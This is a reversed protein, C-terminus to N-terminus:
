GMFHNLAQTQEMANHISILDGGMSMCSDRAEFWNLKDNFEQLHM